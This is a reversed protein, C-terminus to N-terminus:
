STITSGGQYYSLLMIGDSLGGYLVNDFPYNSDSGIFSIPSLSENSSIHLVPGM